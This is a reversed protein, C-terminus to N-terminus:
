TTTPTTTTAPTGGMIGKAWAPKAVLVYLVAAGVLYLMTNDGKPNGAKRTGRSVSHGGQGHYEASARKLAQGREHKSAGKPVSRLHKTAIAQWTTM